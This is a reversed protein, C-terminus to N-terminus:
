RSRGVATLGKRPLGRHSLQWKWHGLQSAGREGLGVGVGRGEPVSRRVAQFRLNWGKDRPHRSPLWERDDELVGIIGADVVVHVNPGFVLLRDDNVLRQGIGPLRYGASLAPRYTKMQM